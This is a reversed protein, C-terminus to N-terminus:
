PMRGTKKGALSLPAPGFLDRLRNVVYSCGDNFRAKVLAQVATIVISDINREPSRRRPASGMALLSKHERVLGAGSVIIIDIRRLHQRDNEFARPRFGSQALVSSQGRAAQKM